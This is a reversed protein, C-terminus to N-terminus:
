HPNGEVSFVVRGAKHMDVLKAEPDKLQWPGPSACAVGNGDPIDAFGPPKDPPRRCDAKHGAAWHAKQCNASCYKTTKCRGCVLLKKKEAPLAHCHSCRDPPPKAWGRTIRGIRCAKLLANTFLQRHSLEEVGATQLMKLFSARDEGVMAALCRLLTVRADACMQVHALDQLTNSVGALVAIPHSKVEPFDAIYMLNQMGPESLLAVVDEFPPLAPSAAIPARTM